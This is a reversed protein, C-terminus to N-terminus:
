VGFEVVSLGFPFCLAVATLLGTVATTVIRIPRDTRREWGRLRDVIGPAADFAAPAGVDDTTTLSPQPPWLARRITVLAVIPVLIALQPKILAAIVTFVASREPRDRWLERVGLLLFIVGVSDVQGWIVSDYWTVPNAVVLAAGILAARRGGGLELIMTWVLWGLIIDALIAPIKILDGPNVAGIAQGVQGIVYLVYLYGPTYDIFGARGYFGGIGNKALDMAWGQFSSRDSAFGTGLNLQAIIFRFALGLALVAVIAGIGDRTWSTRTPADADRSPGGSVRGSTM